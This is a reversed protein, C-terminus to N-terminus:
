PEFTAAAGTPQAASRTASPSAIQISVIAVAAVSAASALIFELHITPWLLPGVTLYPVLWLRSLRPSRLAIPVFLIAYYHAWVIPSALLAAALCLTLRPLDGKVRWAAVLAAAGAAFAMVEGTGFSAGENVAISLVGVGLPGFATVTERTLDDYTSLTDPSLLWWALIAAGSWAAATSAALFRRTLLLFVVVPWLWVKMVIMVGAASGALVPHRDRAVWVLAIGAVLMLTTNGLILCCLVPPSAFAVAYARLDRCGLLWLAVGFAAISATLWLAVAFWEPLLVLPSFIATATPPWQTLPDPFGAAGYYIRKGPWWVNGYFDSLMRTLHPAYYITAGVSAVMAAVVGVTKTSPMDSLRM